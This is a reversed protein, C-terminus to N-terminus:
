QTWYDLVLADDLLPGVKEVLALHDPHPLYTDRGAEDAFTMTICHTFGKAKGEVSVDQGLELALLEPIKNPLDHFDKIVDAKQNASTEPKFKLAVVHRLLPGELDDCNSCGAFLSLALFAIIQTSLLLTKKM